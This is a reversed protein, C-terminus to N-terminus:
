EIVQETMRILLKDKDRWKVWGVVQNNEAVQAWYDKVELVRLAYQSTVNLRNGDPKDYIALDNNDNSDLVGISAVRKLYYEWTEFYPNRGNLKIIATTKKRESVIVEYATDNHWVVKFELEPGSPSGGSEISAKSELDSSGRLLLHPNLSCRLKHTRFEYSGKGAGEKIQVVKITDFAKTHQSIYLPINEAKSFILLGVGVPDIDAQQKLDRTYFKQQCSILFFIPLTCILIKTM